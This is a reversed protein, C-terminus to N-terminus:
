LEYLKNDMFIKYFDANKVLLDYRTVINYMRRALSMELKARYQIYKYYIVIQRDILEKKRPKYKAILMPETYQKIYCPIDPTLWMDYNHGWEPPAKYIFGPTRPILAPYVDKYQNYLRLVKVPIFYRLAQTAHRNIVTMCHNIHDTDPQTIIRILENLQRRSVLATLDDDNDVAKKRIQKAREAINMRSQIILEARKQTAPKKINLNSDIINESPIFEAEEDFPATVDEQNQEDEESEDYLDWDIEKLLEEITAM